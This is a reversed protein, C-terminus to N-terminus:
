GGFDYDHMVGETQNFKDNLEQIKVKIEEQQPSWESPCETRLQDVRDDLETMIMHFGEIHDFMKEKDRTPMKDIKRIVEYIKAKWATLEMEVNKCYDKVEM